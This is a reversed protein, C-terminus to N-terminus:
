SLGRMQSRGQQMVQVLQWHVAQIQGGQVGDASLRWLLGTSLHWVSTNLFASTKVFAVTLSRFFIVQKYIHKHVSKIHNYTKRSARLLTGLTTNM